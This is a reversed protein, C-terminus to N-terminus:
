GPAPEKDDFAGDGDEDSEEGVEDEGIEWARCLPQGFLLALEGDPPELLIDPGVVPRATPLLAEPVPHLEREQVDLHPNEHDHQEADDSRSAHGIEERGHHLRESIALDLAQEQGRRGVNKSDDRGEQVCPMGVARALTIEM